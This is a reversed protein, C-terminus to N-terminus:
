SSDVELNSNVETPQTTKEEEAPSQSADAAAKTDAEEVSVDTAAEAFLSTKAGADPTAEENTEVDNPEVDSDSAMLDQMSAENEKALLMERYGKLAEQMFTYYAETDELTKLNALLDGQLSFMALRKYRKTALRPNYEVLPFLRHMFGKAGELQLIYELLERKLKRRKGILHSYNTLSPFFNIIKLGHTFWVIFALGGAVGGVWAYTLKFLSLLFLFLALGLILYWLTRSRKAAFLEADKPFGKLALLEYNLGELRAYYTLREAELRQKEAAEREEIKRQREALEYELRERERRQQDSRLNDEAQKEKEIWSAQEDKDLPLENDNAHM